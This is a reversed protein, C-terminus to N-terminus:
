GTAQLELPNSSCHHSVTIYETTQNSTNQTISAALSATHLLKLCHLSHKFPNHNAITLPIDRHSPTTPKHTSTTTQKNTQENQPANAAKPCASALQKPASLLV